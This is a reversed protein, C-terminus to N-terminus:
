PNGQGAMVHKDRKERKVPAVRREPPVSITIEANLVQWLKSLRDVAEGSTDQQSKKSSGSPSDTMVYTKPKKKLAIETDLIRWLQSLKDNAERTTDSLSEAGAKTNSQRKTDIETNLVRWLQRMVDSVEKAKADTPGSETGAGLQRKFAIDMNLVSWLQGVVDATEDAKSQEPKKGASSAVPTAVSKVSAQGAKETKEDLHGNEDHKASIDTNLVRWLQSLIDGAEKGVPAKPDINARAAKSMVIDTNLVRWLQNLVDASDQSVTKETRKEALDALGKSVKAQSSLARSTPKAAAELHNLNVDMMNSGVAHIHGKNQLVSLLAFTKDVPLKLRRSILFGVMPRMELLACIKKLDDVLDGHMTGLKPWSLLRLLCLMFQSDLRKISVAYAVSWESGINKIEAV